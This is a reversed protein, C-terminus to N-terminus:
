EKLYKTAVLLLDIMITIEEVSFEKKSGHIYANRDDKIRWLNQIIFRDNVSINFYDIFIASISHFLSPEEGGKKPIFIKQDIKIDTNNQVYYRSLEVKEFGIYYRYDKQMVLYYKKYLELFNFAALFVIDLTTSRRMDIGASDRICM